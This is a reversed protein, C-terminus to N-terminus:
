TIMNAAKAPNKAAKPDFKLFKNVQPPFSFNNNKKLHNIHISQSKEKSISQTIKQRYSIPFDYYYIFANIIFLSGFFGRWLERFSRGLWLFSWCLECRGVLPPLCFWFLRIFLILMDLLSWVNRHFNRLNFLLFVVLIVM